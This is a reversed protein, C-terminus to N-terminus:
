RRTESKNSGGQDNDKTSNDSALSAGGPELAKLLADLNGIMGDLRSELGNAMVDAADM